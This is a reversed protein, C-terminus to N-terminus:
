ASFDHEVIFRALTPPLPVDGAPSSCRWAGNKHHVSIEQDGLTLALVPQADGYVPEYRSKVDGLEGSDRLMALYLAYSRLEVFYGGLTKRSLLYIASADRHILRERCYGILRPEAVVYKRWDTCTAGEIIRQLSAAVDEGIRELLSRFGPRGVVRLWNQARDRFATANPQCFSFKAAGRDVL